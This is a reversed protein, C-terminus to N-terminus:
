GCGVVVVTSSVVVWGTVVEVTGAVVVVDDVGVVTGVDVVVVNGTTGVVVGPVIGLVRQSCDESCRSSLRPGIGVPGRTSRSQTSCLLLERADSRFILATSTIRVRSM